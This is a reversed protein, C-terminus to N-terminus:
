SRVGGDIPRRKNDRVKKFHSPTLGTIKKFQNSLHAISSYGMEHSIESISLEGYVLLEKVREIKQHIHYQEITTGEVESFLNSLQSYDKGIHEALYDSLNTKIKKKHHVVDIIAAKIQEILRSKKDDILQFGVGEMAHRVTEIQDPSLKEAFQVEGLGVSVPKIHLKELEQEVVM